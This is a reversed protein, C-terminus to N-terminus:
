HVQIHQKMNSSNSFRKDCITCAFPKEGTHIRMHRKLNSKWNFQRHCVSCWHEEEAFPTNDEPRFITDSARLQGKTQEAKNEPGGKEEEVQDAARDVAEAAAMPGLTASDFTLLSVRLISLHLELPLTLLNQAKEVEHLM